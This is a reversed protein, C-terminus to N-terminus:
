DNSILKWSYTLDASYTTRRDLVFYGAGTVLRPVQGITHEPAVHIVTTPTVAPHNVTVSQVWAPLIAYGHRYKKHTV